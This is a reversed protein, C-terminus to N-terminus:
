APAEAWLQAAQMVLWPSFAWPTARAAVALDAADVWRYEAVEDARPLPQATAVATYVPCIENEVIGGADVARYRFDPLALHVDTLELGLEHRARRLVAEALPEGPLPHGCFSNTWVGPWTRKDLARRTVLLRGETDVVHCSFALHLPTRDTHVEAKLATGIPTGDEAVLVVREEDPM